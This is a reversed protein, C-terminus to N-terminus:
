AAIARLEDLQRCWREITAEREILEYEIGHVVRAYPVEDREVATVVGQFSVRGAQRANEDAVHDIDLMIRQIAAEHVLLLV